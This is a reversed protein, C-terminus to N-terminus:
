DSERVRHDPPFALLPRMNSDHRACLGVLGNKSATHDRFTSRNTGRVRGRTRGLRAWRPALPSPTSLSAGCCSAHTKFFHPQNARIPCSHGVAGRKFLSCAGLLPRRRAGSRRPVPRRALREHAARLRPRDAGRVGNARRPRRRGSARTSGSAKCTSGSRVGLLAATPFGVAVLTGQGREPRVFVPM